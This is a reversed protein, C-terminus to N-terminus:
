FLPLCAFLSVFPVAFLRGEEEEEEEREKKTPRRSSWARLYERGDTSRSCSRRETASESTRERATLAHADNADSEQDKNPTSSRNRGGTATWHKQAGM